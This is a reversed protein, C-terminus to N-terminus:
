LQGLLAALLFKGAVNRKLGTPQIGAGGELRLSCGILRGAGVTAAFLYESIRFDRADLRRLIPTLNRLSPLIAALRPTDFSVDSALGWFQLDAFGANPFRQWLRHPTLLKISERWFPARKVPLPGDGMQLLLVRGGAALFEIVAGDCATTILPGRWDALEDASRRHAVTAWEQALLRAPDYFATEERALQSQPYMWLPWQNTCTVSQSDVHAILTLSQPQDFVPAIFEVVGLEVPESAPLLRTVAEGGAAIMQGNANQVRWTFACNRLPREACHNLIVHLRVAAGDWWNHTDLREPRDGGHQWIRSRGVDLCLIAADNFARFESASWKPEGDDDLIGSTAIPTDALGTIVYGQVGRRKRVTELTLKRVM